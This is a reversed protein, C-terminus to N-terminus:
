IVARHRRDAARARIYRGCFLPPSRGRCDGASAKMPPHDSVCRIDHMNLLGAQRLRHAPLYRRVRGHDDDIHHLVSHESYETCCVLSEAHSIIEIQLRHTSWHATAPAVRVEFGPEENEVHWEHELMYLFSSFLTLYMTLLFLLLLLGDGSRRFGEAFLNLDEAYSGIKFVRTVFRHM